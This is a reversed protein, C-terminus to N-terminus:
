PDGRLTDIFRITNIEADFRPLDEHTARSYIRAFKPEPAALFLARGLELPVVSDEAGHLFYIVTDVAGIRDVSDYRDERMVLCAPLIPLYKEFTSCMRDFPAELILAMEEVEAALAVAIGSGLSFGYIIRDGEDVPQGILTDLETWVRNADRLFGAEGPTGPQGGGGRYAMAAVGYGAEGLARLRPEHVSLTGAFGMFYVIVPKGPLPQTVWVELAPDDGQAPISRVETRPLDAPPAAAEPFPYLIDRQFLVFAVVFIAYAIVLVLAFSAYVKM